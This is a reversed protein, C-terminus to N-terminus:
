SLWIRLWQLGGLVLLTALAAIAAATVWRDIVRKQRATFGLAPLTGRRRERWSLGMATVITLGLMMFLSLKVVVFGHPAGARGCAALM